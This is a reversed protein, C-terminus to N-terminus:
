LYVIVLLVFALDHIFLLNPKHNIKLPHWKSIKKDFAIPLPEFNVIDSNYLLAERLNQTPHTLKTIRFAVHKYVVYEGIQVLYAKLLNMFEIIVM